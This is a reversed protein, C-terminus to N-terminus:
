GLYQVVRAHGATTRVARNQAPEPNTTAYFFNDVTSGVTTDIVTTSKNASLNIVTTPLNPNAFKITATVTSLTPTYASNTISGHYTQNSFSASTLTLFISTSPVGSLSYTSLTSNFTNTLNSEVVLQLLDDSLASGLTTGSIDLNLVANYGSTTPIVSSSLLRTITAPVNLLSEYAM